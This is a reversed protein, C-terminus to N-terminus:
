PSLLHEFPVKDRGISPWPYLQAAPKRSNPYGTSLPAKEHVGMAHLRVNSCVIDIRIDRGQVHGSLDNLVVEVDRDVALDCM